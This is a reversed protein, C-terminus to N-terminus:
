QSTPPLSSPLPNFIPRVLHNRKQSHTELFLHEMMLSSPGYAKIHMSKPYGYIQSYMCARCKFPTFLYMRYMNLDDNNMGVNSVLYEVNDQCVKEGFEWGSRRPGRQKWAGQQRCRQLWECPLFCMLFPWFQARAM